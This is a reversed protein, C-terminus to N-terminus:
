TSQIFVAKNGAILLNELWSDHYIIKNIQHYRSLHKNKARKCFPKFNHILAWARLKLDANKLHGHFYQTNFLYKDLNNMPRDVQNSTRYANNFEYYQAYQDKKAWIKDIAELIRQKNLPQIMDHAKLKFEDIQAIFEKADTAKYADWLMKRIEAWQEKLNKTCSGIKLVGHLFCLILTIDPFLTQWANRTAAWGDIVVSQPAFDPKLLRAETAFNGYAKQLGTQAESLSISIGWVCEQAATMTVSAESGNFFTIKEDAVYHDPLDEASFLSTAVLNYSGLHTEMREWHTPSGGLTESIREYSQGTYRMLLGKAAEQTRRVWYPMIFSPMITLVSRSENRLRLRRYPLGQRKSYRIDHMDYGQSLMTEPFLEPHVSMLM